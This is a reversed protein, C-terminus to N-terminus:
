GLIWVGRWVACSNASGTIGNWSAERAWALGELDNRVLGAHVLPEPTSSEGTVLVRRCSGYGHVDLSVGYGTGTSVVSYM